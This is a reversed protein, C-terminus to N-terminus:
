TAPLEDVFLVAASGNKRGSSVARNGKLQWVIEYEFDQKGAPLMFEVQESLQGKAANLTVQKVQEAGGLEYFVKV